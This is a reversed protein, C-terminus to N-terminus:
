SASDVPTLVAVMTGLIPYQCESKAVRIDKYAPNDSRFIWAEADQILRKVAGCTRGSSEVGFASLNAIVVQNDKRPLRHYEFVVQDGISLGPTMSDGVVTIVFRKAGALHKPVAVWPCQRAWDLNGIEFGDFPAGAALQAVVPLYEHFAQAVISAYNFEACVPDPSDVRAAPPHNTKTQGPETVFMPRSHVMPYSVPAAVPRDPVIVLVPTNDPEWRAVGRQVATIEVAETLGSFLRNEWNGFDLGGCFVEAERDFRQPHRHRVNSWSAVIRDKGFRLARQTPLRDRKQNNVSRLAPLLNWLDNNRWLVFPIVHDVDFDTLLPKGTWVCVKERQEQYVGRVDAVDRDPECCSLLCDIVTSPKIADKSLRSTLEAWRLVTADQIWSGTLSLERWMDASMVVTKRAPDYQLISFDAGGGAYRVPMNWITQKLKSMLKGHLRATDPALAGDKCAAVFGSLGGQGQWHDILASMQHRFALPKACAPAEGHKQPIFQDHAIIPWYYRLWKEAIAEVPVHVRSGDLYRAISYNTQAIDALARFLALKYTADKKDRNLVSEVTDLPRSTAADAKTLLMVTWARSERGLGDQSERSWVLHFGVRELLLCLKPGPLDIFLRGSPDRRSAPDVDDNRSPISILLRGGPKLVRRLSYVADFVQADPVHMLVASCLVGDFEEDRFQVLEPLTERFIRGELPTGERRCAEQTQALMADSADVAYADYGRRLLDVFDRGSGCGVDLVKRLGNFAEDFYQAIGGDAQSYVRALESAHSSYFAVTNNDM